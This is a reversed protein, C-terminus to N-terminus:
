RVLKEWDFHLYEGIVKVCSNVLSKRSAFLKAIEKLEDYNHAYSNLIARALPLAVSDSSKISGFYDITGKDELALWVRSLASTLIPYSIVDPHKKFFRSIENDGVGVLSCIFDAGADAKYVGRDPCSGPDISCRKNHHTVFDLSIIEELSIHREILIELTKNGNWYHIDDDERYWWPGDGITPDYKPFESDYNKDTVLIRAAAIKYAISEIWYYHMGRILQKWEFNFRVNGYRFGGAGDWDNPSLWVVPIRYKNLLSEDSVLRANIVRSRFISLAHHNHCVHSIEVFPQCSIETWNRRKSLKGVRFRQWEKEERAM